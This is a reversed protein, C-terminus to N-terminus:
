DARIKILVEGTNPDTITLSSSFHFGVMENPKREIEPKKSAPLQTSNDTNQEM